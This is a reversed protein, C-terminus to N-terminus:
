RLTLGHVFSFTRCEANSPNQIAFDGGEVVEGEGGGSSLGPKGQGMGGPRPGSPRRKM